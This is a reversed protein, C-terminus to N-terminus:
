AFFMPGRMSPSLYFYAVRGEDPWEAHSVLQAQGLSLIISRGEIAASLAM